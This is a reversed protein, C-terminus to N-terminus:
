RRSESLSFLREFAARLESDSIELAGESIWREFKSNGPIGSPILQGFLAFKQEEAIQLMAADLKAADGRIFAHFMNTQPPNPTITMQPFDSLVAAIEVARDRYAPMQPLHKM